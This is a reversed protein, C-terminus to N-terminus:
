FNFYIVPLKKKLRSYIMMCAYTRDYYKNDTFIHISPYKEKRFKLDKDSEPLIIYIFEKKEHEKPEINFQSIIKSLLLYLDSSKDKLKFIRKLADDRKNNGYM